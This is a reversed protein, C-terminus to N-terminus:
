QLNVLVLVLGEGTELGTMAKGIVTGYSKDRDTAKMAHGPRDSTTLMDGPKISSNVATAKVYVRGSLAVNQGKGLQDEQSLTLGPNVGGAGSIVGAVRTDYAKESLKLQGPNAEDIIVVSGPAIAEEESMAFPEALDAGGTITLVKTTTTGAVNVNGKDFTYAYNNAADKQIMFGNSVGALHGIRVIDQSLDSNLNLEFLFAPATTGIGIRGERTINFVDGTGATWLSLRGGPRNTIEVRNDLGEATSLRLFAQSGSSEFLGVADPAVVHFKHTPSSTGVGINGNGHDMTLIPQNVGGAETLSMYFTKGDQNRLLTEKVDTAADPDKLSLDAGATGWIAINGWNDKGDVHLNAKPETTGIGVNGSAHDMTLMSQKIGGTETLSMFSTRGNQNRMLSEKVDTAADPDKLSLDAGAMGWIAIQGWNDKGDIHLQVKPETTGIGVNGAVSKYVNDAAVTWGNGGGTGGQASIKLTNGTKDITVNNGATLSVDDKLGNVSKVVQGAAIKSATVANDAVGRANMSYATATLRTRPSLEMGTGIALGLWYQKDFALNLTTRSGLIVDFVGSKVEVTQTETWLATGGTAADYLKFTLNYSGDSLAKGSADTLVGQYTLTEPIQAQAAAFCCLLSIVFFVRKM